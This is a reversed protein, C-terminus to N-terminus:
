VLNSVVVIEIIEFCLKIVLGCNCELLDIVFM